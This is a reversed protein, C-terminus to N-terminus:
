CSKDVMGDILRKIFAVLSPDTKELKLKNKQIQTDVM